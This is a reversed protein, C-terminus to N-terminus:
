EPTHMGDARALQEAQGVCAMHTLKQYMGGNEHCCDWVDIQCFLAAQAIGLPAVIDLMLTLASTSAM